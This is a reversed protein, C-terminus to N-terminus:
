GLFEPILVILFEVSPIIMARKIKAAAPQTICGPPSELLKPDALGDGDGEGEGEGASTLWAVAMGTVNGTSSANNESSAKLDANFDFTASV